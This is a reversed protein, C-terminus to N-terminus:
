AQEILRLFTQPSIHYSVHMYMTYVSDYLTYVHVHMSLTHKKINSTVMMCQQAYKTCVRRFQGHLLCAIMCSDLIRYMCHKAIYTFAVAPPYSEQPMKLM